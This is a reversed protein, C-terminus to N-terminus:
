FKIRTSGKRVIFNPKFVAMFNTIILQLGFLRIIAPKLGLQAHFIMKSMFLFVTGSMLTM